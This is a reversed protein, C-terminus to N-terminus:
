RHPSITLDSNEHNIQEKILEKLIQYALDRSNTRTIQNRYDQHNIEINSLAISLYHELSETQLNRQTM